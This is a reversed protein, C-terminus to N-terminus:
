FLFRNLHYDHPSALAGCKEFVRAPPLKLQECAAELAKWEISNKDPAYLLTSVLPRLAEPLRGAALEDVYRQKREAQLRKKEVSALAAKLAEPPAAKYRGKGKKYFYMPAGHLKLLLAASELADPAHGFYERGLADFGFEDPGCCQWLFDVDIGDAAHQAAELFAGLPPADFRVLVASAKIKSRKGHPAEVQLSTVQLSTENDALIAGVKFGGEEEYFVNM